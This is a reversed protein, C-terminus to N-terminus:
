SLLSVSPDSAEIKAVRSQSSGIRKAAETQTLGLEHRRDVYVRTLEMKADIFASEAASLGLFEDASGVRWGDKQLRGKRGASLKGVRKNM